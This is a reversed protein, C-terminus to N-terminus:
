LLLTKQWKPAWITGPNRIAVYFSISLYLFFWLISPHTQFNSETLEAIEYLHPSIISFDM